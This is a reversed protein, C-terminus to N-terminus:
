ENHPAEIPLGNEYLGTVEWNITWTHDQAGIKELDYLPIAETTGPQLGSVYLTSSYHETDTVFDNTFSIDLTYPTHNTFFVAECGYEKHWMTEAGWLQEQLVYETELMATTYDQLEEYYAFVDPFNDLFYFGENVTIITTSLEYMATLQEVRDLEPECLMQVVVELWRANEYLAHYQFDQGSLYAFESYFMQHIERQQEPDDVYSLEVAYVTLANIFDLDAGNLRNAPPYDPEPQAEVTEKSIIEIERLSDFLESISIEPLSFSDMSFSIVKPLYLVVAAALALVLAIVVGLVAFATRSNKRNKEADIDTNWVQNAQHKNESDYM